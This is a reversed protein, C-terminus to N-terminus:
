CVGKRFVTLPYDKAGLKVFREDVNAYGHKEYFRVARNNQSLVDLVIHMYGASFLEQEIKSFLAHGYGKGIYDHHLYIASIEGDDPYGDTFSKGFVSAGIMMKDDRVILFQSLGNDFRGLLFRSREAVTMDGLFDADAIKTYEARWCEDLFAAVEYIEERKAYEVSCTNDM